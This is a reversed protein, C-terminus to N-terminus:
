RGGRLLLRVGPPVNLNSEAESVTTRDLLRWAAVMGEKEEPSFEPSALWKVIMALRAEASPTPVLPTALDLMGAIHQAQSHSYASVVRLFMIQAPQAFDRVRAIVGVWEAPVQIRSGLSSTSSYEM